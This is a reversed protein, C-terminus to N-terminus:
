QRENRLFVQKRGEKTPKPKPIQVYLSKGKMVIVVVKAAQEQLRGPRPNHSYTPDFPKGCFFSFNVHKEM